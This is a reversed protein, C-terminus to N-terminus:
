SKHNINKSIDSNTVPLHISNSSSGDMDINGLYLRQLKNQNIEDEEYKMNM